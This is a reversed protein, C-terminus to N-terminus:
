NETPREIHDIVVVEVDIASPVLRLGLDNELRLMLDAADPSTARREGAFAWRVSYMEEDGTRDVVRRGAPGQLWGALIALSLGGSYLTGGIAVYGCRTLAEQPTPYRLAAPGTSREVPETRVASPPSCSEVRKLGAGVQGNARALVLDFSPEAHTESHAVLKLRDTLLAQLALQQKEPPDSFPGTIIVDYRDKALWPPINILLRASPPGQAYARLILGSLGLNTIFVRDPATGSSNSGENTTNRRFERIEYRPDAGPGAVVALNAEPEIARWRETDALVSHIRIMTVKGDAALDYIVTRIPGTMDSYGHEKPGAFYKAREVSVGLQRIAGEAEEESIAARPQLRV